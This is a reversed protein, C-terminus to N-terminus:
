QGGERKNPETRWEARLGFERTSDAVLEAVLRNGCTECMGKLRAGPNADAQPFFLRHGHCPTFLAAVDPIFVVLSSKDHPPQPM